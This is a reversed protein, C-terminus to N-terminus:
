ALFAESTTLQLGRATMDDLWDQTMAPFDPGGPAAPISSTCDTVLHLKQVAKDGLNDAVQRVTERVCHSLAEGAFVVLDAAELVELFRTNLATSPDTPMPVEAHVAGYHETWPNTGKVVWDINAFQANAWDNLAQALDLQVSHGPSGILCHTPWVMLLHRGQAELTDAYRLLYQGVTQGDLVPPKATEFRPVWLRHRLDDARIVTFPPPPTGDAGNRWLAPHGVDVLHHSDLTVHIDDLRDGLRRVMAALRQMDATAGPVPLASGPTDMFDVQPDVIVLHVRTTM